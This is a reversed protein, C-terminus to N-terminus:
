NLLTRNGPTYQISLVLSGTKSSKKQDREIHSCWFEHLTHLRAIIDLYLLFM